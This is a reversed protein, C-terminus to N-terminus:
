VNNKRKTGAEDVYKNDVSDLFLAESFGEKKALQQPYFCPAYNGSAKTSGSGRAAARHYDSTARLRVPTLKGGPFYNGVPSAYM